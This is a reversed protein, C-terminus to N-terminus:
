HFFTKLLSRSQSVAIANANSFVDFPPGSYFQKKKGKTRNERDIEIERNLNLHLLSENGAIISSLFSIIAATVLSASQVLCLYHYDKRHTFTTRLFMRFDVSFYKRVQESEQHGASPEAVKARHWVDPFIARRYCSTEKVFTVIPFRNFCLLVIIPFVFSAKLNIIM